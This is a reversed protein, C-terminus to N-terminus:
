RVRGQVKELEEELLLQNILTVVEQPRPVYEFEVSPQESATQIKISGYNFFAEILGSMHYSIEQIRDIKIDSVKKYILSLFDVDIIREDTIIYVSYFWKILSTLVLYYALLLYGLTLVLRYNDPLMNILPLYKILPTAALMVVAGLIWPVNVIWHQRLVALTKEERDQTEFRITPPWGLFTNLFGNKPKNKLIKDIEARIQDRTQVTPHSVTAAAKERTIETPQNISPTAPSMSKEKDLLHKIRDARAHDKQDQQHPSVFIDPM